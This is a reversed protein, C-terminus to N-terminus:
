YRTRLAAERLASSQYHQASMLERVDRAFGDLEAELRAILRGLLNYGLVAPIAVALGAATMILSEGV